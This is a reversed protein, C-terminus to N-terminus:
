NICAVFSCKTNLINHINLLVQYLRVSPTIIDRLIYFGLSIIKNM